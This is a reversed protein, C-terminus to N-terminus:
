VRSKFILLLLSSLFQVHIAIRNLLKAVVQSTFQSLWRDSRVNLIGM